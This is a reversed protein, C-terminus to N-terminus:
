RVARCSILGMGLATKVGIGSFNAFRLLLAMLRNEMDNGLLRLRMMGKFGYINSGDVSFVNSQLNYKTIRCVNSLDQNLGPADILEDNFGNNWRSILSQFILDLEPMIVYRGDRKFSTTTIFYLDWQRPVAESLFVNDLLDKYSISVDSVIRKFAVPYLKQELFVSRGPLSTLLPSIIEDFDSYLTNIRWVPANIDKNFYVGQSFPRAYSTDHLVASLDHGLRQMFLGHFLSGMSPHLRQGEPFILEYEIQHLMHQMVEM